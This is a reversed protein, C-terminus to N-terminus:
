IFCKYFDDFYIVLLQGILLKIREQDQYKRLIMFLGEIFTAATVYLIYDDALIISKDQLVPNLESKIRYNLLRILEEKLVEYKSGKSKDLLILLETQYQEYFEIIKETIDEALLRVDPITGNNQYLELVMSTFKNYVPGVISSFLEDKNKFYHYINGIAVGAKAAIERMSAEVYGRLTFEQIAATLIRNKVEEKLYQM